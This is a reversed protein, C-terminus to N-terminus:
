LFLLPHARPLPGLHARSAHPTCSRTRCLPPHCASGIHRIWVSSCWLDPFELRATEVRPEPDNPAHHFSFGPPRSARPHASSVPCRAPACAPSAASLVPAPVTDPYTSREYVTVIFSYVLEKRREAWQSCNPLGNKLVPSILRRDYPVPQVTSAATSPQANARPSPSGSLGL